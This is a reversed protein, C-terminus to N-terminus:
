SSITVSDKPKLMWKQLAYMKQIGDFVAGVEALTSNENRHWGHYVGSGNRFTLGVALDSEKGIQLPIKPRTGTEWELYKREIKPIVRPNYSELVLESEHGNSSNIIKMLAEVAAEVPGNARNVECFPKGDIKGRVMLQTKGLSTTSVEFYEIVLGDDKVGHLEMFASYLIHTESLPSKRENAETKLRDTFREIGQKNGKDYVFGNKDLVDM